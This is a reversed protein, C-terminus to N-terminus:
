VRLAIVYASLYGKVVLVAAIEFSLVRSYSLCLVLPIWHTLYQICLSRFKGIVVLVASFKGMEVLVSSVSRSSCQM